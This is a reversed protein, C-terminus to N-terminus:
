HAVVAEWVTLGLIAAVGLMGIWVTAESNKWRKRIQADIFPWAFITFVVFGMSLVAATGSLLKLWRFAVYFFWEPKIVEPTSLPNAKPGLDAPFAMALASLLVMLGLGIILESLIHDPFFPFHKKSQKPEDEFQLETVGQIRIMAIHVILLLVLLGPLVAAHLVFFRSLTHANYTEGGLLLKKGIPGVVPIQDAINAGVTAGWYSLQEFVLSYGTFGLVLTTLLLCVGLMWNLERPKRFSGTFFVRMQHLVVAAIMLTAGWKHVSRLYWGFSAEHTIYRISEYATEPAPQYYFALLIGTVIQVIFLYAPTGGLAFWWRKLHNPVPENTLADLAGAQVPLRERVADIIRSM